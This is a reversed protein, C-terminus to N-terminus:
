IFYNCFIKKKWYDHVDETFGLSFASQLDTDGLQRNVIMIDYDHGCVTFDVFIIAAGIFWLRENHNFVFECILFYSLIFIINCGSANHNESYRSINM